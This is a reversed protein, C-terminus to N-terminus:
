RGSADPPPPIVCSPCWLALLQSHRVSWRTSADHLDFHANWVYGRATYTSLLQTVVALALAVALLIRGGGLERWRQFVPLMLLALFPALETMLRPGISKGGWWEDYGSVLLYVGLCAAAAAAFVDRLQRDGRLAPLGLPVLLVFPFFLLLGRSPSVLTAALGQAVHSGWRERGNALGYGGLPHGYVSQLLLAAVGVTVAQALGYALLERRHRWLLIAIAGGALVATPRCVFAGGAAVGAAVARAVSGGGPLLLFLAVCLCFLEGTMSWLAQSASSLVTTSAAFLVATALASAEGHRRRVGAFLLVASAVTLLAALHKDRRQALVDWDGGPLTLETLAAYPVSLLGTGLPYAPLIRDDVRIASYHLRRRTQYYRESSLDITRHRVLVPGLTVTAMNDGSTHWMGNGVFLVYLPMALVLGVDAPGLRFGQAGPVLAAGRSSLWAYSALVVLVLALGLLRFSPALWDRGTPLVLPISAYAVAALLLGCLLIRKVALVRYATEAQQFRAAAGARNEVM